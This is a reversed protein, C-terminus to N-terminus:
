YLLFYISLNKHVMDIIIFTRSIEIKNLILLILMVYIILRQLESAIYSFDINLTM